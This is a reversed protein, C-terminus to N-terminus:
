NELDFLNPVGDVNKVLILFNPAIKHLGSATWMTERRYHYFFVARPLGLTKVLLEIMPAELMRIAWGEYELDEASLPANTNIKMPHWLLLSGDFAYREDCIAYFYFAMSMAMVPAVCVLKVGRTQALLMANVFQLGAYVSGGPSNLVIYVPKTSKTVLQELETAAVLANGSVAGVIRITRSPDVTLTQAQATSALGLLALALVLLKKM